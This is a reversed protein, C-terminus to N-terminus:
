IYKIYRQRLQHWINNSYEELVELSPIVNIDQVRTDLQTCRVDVVM